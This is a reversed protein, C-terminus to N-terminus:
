ITDEPSRPNIYKERTENVWSSNVVENYEELTIYDNLKDTLKQLLLETNNAEDNNVLIETDDLCVFKETGNLPEKTNQDIYSVVVKKITRM